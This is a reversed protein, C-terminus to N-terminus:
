PRRTLPAMDIQEVLWDGSSTRVMIVPVAVPRGGQNLRVTLQVAESVRGPVINQGQVQYDESELLSALAYMRREVDARPDRQLISGDRTGFLRSMTELDQAKTGCKASAVCNAARLFSEVALQPAPGAVNGGAGSSSVVQHVCAASLAASALALGAAVRSLRSRSM